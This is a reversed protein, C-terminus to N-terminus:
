RRRDPPESCGPREAVSGRRRAAPDVSYRPAHSPGVHVAREPDHRKTVPRARQREKKSFEKKSLAHRKLRAHDWLLRTPPPPHSRSGDVEPSGRLGNIGDSGVM